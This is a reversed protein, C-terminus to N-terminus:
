RVGMLYDELLVVTQAGGEPVVVGSYGGINAIIMGEPLIGEKLDHSMEVYTWTKGIFDTYGEPDTFHAKNRPFMFGQCIFTKNQKVDWAGM